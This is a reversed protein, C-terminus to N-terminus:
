MRAAFRDLEVTAISDRLIESTGECIEGFKADRYLREIDTGAIYGHGAFIQMGWNVVRSAAESAFLKACSALVYADTGGTDFAWAARLALMRSLDVLTYMDALKFGIDQYMGIPRGFATRERAHVTSIEMCARSIGVCMGAIGVAGMSLLSNTQDLGCGPKSGVIGLSGCGEMRVEGVLSGKMGLTEVLRDTVLGRAGREVIFLSPGADGGGALVVFVDACPANVVIDKTGELVWADGQARASAAASALDSGAGRESYALAGVSSGTVLGEVYRRKQGDNGFLHFTGACLFASARACLFVSPSLRSVAEAALCHRVLDLGGDERFPSLFGAEGLSRIVSRTTVCKVAADARELEAAVPAIREVVFAELSEKYERHTRELEYDM